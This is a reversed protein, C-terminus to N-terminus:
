RARSGNARRCIPRSPRNHYGKKRMSFTSHSDHRAGYWISSRLTGGVPNFIRHGFHPCENTTVFGFAGFGAPAAGAAGPAGRGAAFGPARVITPTAGGAAGFMGEGIPPV